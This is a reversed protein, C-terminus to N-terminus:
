NGPPAWADDRAVGHRPADGHVAPLLHGAAAIAAELRARSGPLSRPPDPGPPAPGARAPLAPALRAGPNPPARPERSAPRRARLSPEGRAVRPAPAADRRRRRRGDPGPHRPEHRPLGARARPGDRLLRAGPRPLLPRRRPAPLGAGRLEQPTAPAGAQVLPHGPPAALVFPDECVVEQEVEGLPAELALLAGDLRGDRLAEILTETKDEVWVASLAPHHSGCRPCSRPSCTPPSPRSSASDCPARSRTASSGSATPWTTPRSSCGGLARWCPRAPRPSSCGARPGRRLAPGRAGGRAPDGPRVALAALRPLARRRAPLLAPRRRRRRVPAAPAHVPSPQVARYAM